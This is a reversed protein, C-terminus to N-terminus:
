LIMKRPEKDIFRVLTQQRQLGAEDIQRLVSDLSPGHARVEGGHFAVWEDPYRDLMTSEQSLFLRATKDFEQLERDVKKPDGIHALIEQADSDTTM